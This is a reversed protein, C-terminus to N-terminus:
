TKAESSLRGTYSNYPSIQGRVIITFRLDKWYRLSPQYTQRLGPVNEPKEWPCLESLFAQSFIIDM